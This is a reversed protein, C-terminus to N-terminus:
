FNYRLGVLVAHSDIDVDSQTGDVAALEIGEISSYRYGFELDFADTLQFSTGAGVQWAFGSDTDDLAVVNGAPLGATPAGLVVGHNKFNVFGYGVGASVYPKIIGLDLDYYANVMGTFAHTDGFRNEDSFTASLATITHSKVDFDSFGVEVEGRFTGYTAGIAIKGAYNAGEYDNEIGTPVAAAANLDFRTDQLFALGIRTAIYYGSDAQEDATVINLDADAALAGPLTGLYTTALIAGAFLRSSLKM